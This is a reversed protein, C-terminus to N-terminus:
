GVLFGVELTHDAKVSPSYASGATYLYWRDEKLSGMCYASGDDFFEDLFSVESDFSGHLPPQLEPRAFNKRSYFVNAISGMGAYKKALEVICEIGELLRTTGCTKLILRTDTIFLSSESLVYSDIVGNTRHHLIHCQCIELMRVLEEYPINRLSRKEGAGGTPPEFWLELLKEAGEFFYAPDPEVLAIDMPNM